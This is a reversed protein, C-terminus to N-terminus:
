LTGATGVTVCIAFCEPLISICNFITTEKLNNGRVAHKRGSHVRASSSTFETPPVLCSLSCSTSPRKDTPLLLLRCYFSAM